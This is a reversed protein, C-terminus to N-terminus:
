PECIYTAEYFVHSSDVTDTDDATTYYGLSLGSNVNKYVDMTFDNPPIVLTYEYGPRAVFGMLHSKSATYGNSVNQNRFPLNTLRWPGTSSGKLSLIILGYVTVVNGVRSYYGVSSGIVLGTNGGGYTWGPTFTGQEPLFEAEAQGLNVADHPDVADAVNVIRREAGSSGVSVTDDVTNISGPGIAVCNVGTAEAADGIAVSGSFALTDAGIAIGGDGSNAQATHGIAICDANDVEAQYGIAIGSDDGAVSAEGIAVGHPVSTAAKYGIAIGSAATM